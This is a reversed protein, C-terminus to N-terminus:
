HSIWPIVAPSCVQEIQGKDMETELRKQDDSKERPAVLRRFSSLLSFGLSPDTSISESLAVLSGFSTGQEVLHSKTDPLITLYM